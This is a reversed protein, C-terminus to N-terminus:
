IMGYLTVQSDDDYLLIGKQLLWMSTEIVVLSISTYEYPVLHQKAFGYLKM